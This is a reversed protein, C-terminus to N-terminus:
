PKARDPDLVRGTAPDTPMWRVVVRDRVPGPVDRYTVLRKRRRALYARLVRALKSPAEGRAILLLAASLFLSGGGILAINLGAAAVIGIILAEM